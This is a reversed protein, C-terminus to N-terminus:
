IDRCPLTEIAQKQCHKIASDLMAEFEALLNIAVRAMQHNNEPYERMVTRFMESILGHGLFRTHGTLDRDVGCYDFPEEYEHSASAFTEILEERSKGTLRMYEDVIKVIVKDESEYVLWPNEARAVSKLIDAIQIHTANFRAEVFNGLWNDRSDLELKYRDVTENERIMGQLDIPDLISRSLVIEGGIEKFWIRARITLLDNYVLLAENRKDIVCQEYRCIYVGADTRQSMEQVHELNSAVEMLSGAKRFFGEKRADECSILRFAEECNRRAKELVKKALEPNQIRMRKRRMM